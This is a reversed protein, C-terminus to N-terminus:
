KYQDNGLYTIAVSGDGSRYAYPAFYESTGDFAKPEFAITSGFVAPNAALVERVTAEIGAADPSQTELTLAAFRPISEMGKLIIEIRNVTARALNGANSEVSSLMLGRSVVYNYAFASFFIVATSLLILLSLKFALGFRIKQSAPSM